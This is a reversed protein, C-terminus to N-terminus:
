EVTLLLSRRVGSDRHPTDNVRGIQATRAATQPRSIQVGVTPRLGRGSKAGEDATLSVKDLVLHSGFSKCVRSASIAVTPANIM